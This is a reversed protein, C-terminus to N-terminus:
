GQKRRKTIRFFQDLNVTPPEKPGKGLLRRLMATTGVLEMGETLDWSKPVDGDIRLLKYKAGRGTSLVEVDFAHGSRKGRHHLVQGIRVATSCVAPKVIEPRDGTLEELRDAATKRIMTSRHSTCRVLVGERKRALGAVIRIATRTRAHNIRQYLAEDTEDSDEDELLPKPKEKAPAAEKPAAEKAPKAKAKAKAKGKAKAKAPKAEEEPAPAAEAELAAIRKDIATVVSKYKSGVERAALLTPLDADAVRAQIEKAKGALLTAIPDPEEDPEEDAVPEEEDAPPEEEEDERLGGAQVPVFTKFWEVYGEGGTGTVADPISIAAGLSWLDADDTRIEVTRHGRTATSSEVPIDAKRGKLTLRLLVAEGHQEADLNTLIPTTM